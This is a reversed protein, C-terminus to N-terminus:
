NKINYFNINNKLLDIMKDRIKQPEVIEVNKLGLLWGLLNDSSAAIFKVLLMGNPEEIVIIKKGFQDIFAGVLYQPIRVTILKEEGSFMGIRRSVYTNANFNNFQDAGERSIDCLEINHIKDVRFSREGLLGDKEETNYGYLYYRDNAWILAWPNITYRDKNKKVLQKNKDWMMYDFSIQVKKSLAEQLQNINYLIKKNEAKANSIGLVSRDLEAAEYLSVTSKLKDIMNRAIEKEIINSANISDIILKLEEKELLITSIYYRANRGRGSNIEIGLETRLQNMYRLISDESCSHGAIEMYTLIEQM